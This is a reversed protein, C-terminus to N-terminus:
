EAPYLMSRRQRWEATAVWPQLCSETASEQRPAKSFSKCASLSVGRSASRSPLLFPKSFMIAAQMTCEMYYKLEHCLQSQIPAVASLESEPHSNQVSQKLFVCTHVCRRGLLFLCRNSKFAYVRTHFGKINLIDFCTLKCCTM